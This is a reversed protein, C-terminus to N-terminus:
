TPVKNRTMGCSIRKNSVNKLTCMVDVRVCHNVARSVQRRNLIDYYVKIFYKNSTGLYKDVLKVIGDFSCM